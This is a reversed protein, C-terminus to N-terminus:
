TVGWGGIRADAVEPRDRLRGFVAQVDAIEKPGDIGVLGGSDGHGQADYALVAYREGMIGMSQAVSLMGANGGLGHM